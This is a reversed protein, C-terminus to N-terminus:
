KASAEAAQILSVSGSTGLRDAGAEILALASDLNRIGGSAKVGVEPAVSARMIRIDEVSAGRPGFGTSTKVFHAGAAESLKSAAAIQDPDMHGTELIVKLLGDGGRVVDAVARIDEEVARVEGALFGGVWLVMDLERAGASLALEAEAAKAGEVLAGSPFGIVTCVLPKSGELLKSALGVYRGHVCVSHFGYRVAEGVLDEVYEGRADPKLLTHDIRDALPM